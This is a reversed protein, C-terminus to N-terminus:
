RSQMVQAREELGALIGPPVASRDVGLLAISLVDDWDVLTEVCGEKLNVVGMAILGLKDAMELGEKVESLCGVGIIGKPRYQRVMRKIFSSGPVIFLRYGIDELTTRIQGIECAGCSRCRIGEPSLYAPCKASRLCQPLFIARDRVPLMEFAKINMTNHLQIFFALVERDELGFLRFLAKSIGELAVLGATLLGPVVPKGKRISYLSLTVLLLASLFITLLIVITAMGVVLFIQNLLEHDVFM